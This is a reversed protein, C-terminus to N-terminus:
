LSYKKAASKKALVSPKPQKWHLVAPLFQSAAFLTQEAGGLLDYSWEITARLTQHRPLDTRRGGTLLNFRSDLRGAVEQASLLNMRAAALELALPIGDLRRCIQAIIPADLDV